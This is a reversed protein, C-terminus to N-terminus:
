LPSSWLSIIRGTSLGRATATPGKCWPSRSRHLLGARSPTPWPRWSRTGKAAAATASSSLWLLLLSLLRSPRAWVPAWSPRTWARPPAPGSARTTAASSAATLSQLLTRAAAASPTPTPSPRSGSGATPAISSPTTTTSSLTAWLMVRCRALTPFRSLTSVAVPAKFSSTLTLHCTSPPVGRCHSHSRQGSASTPLSRRSLTAMSSIQLGVALM